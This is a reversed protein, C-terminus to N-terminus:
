LGLRNCRLFSGACPTRARTWRGGGTVSAVRWGAPARDEVAWAATGSAPTATITVPLPVGATYRSQASAESRGSLRRLSPRQPPEGSLAGDPHTLSSAAREGVVAPCGVRARHPVRRRTELALRREYRLRDRHPETRHAMDPGEELGIRLCDGRLGLRPRRRQHRGPSPPGKVVLVGTASSALFKTDGAFGAVIAVSGGGLQDPITYPTTASGTADTTANLIAAGLRLSVLKGALGTGGSGLAAALTVTDGIRGSAPSASLTTVAPGYPNRAM